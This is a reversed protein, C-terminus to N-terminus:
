LFLVKLNEKKAKAMKACEDVVPVAAFVQKHKAIIAANVNLDKRGLCLPKQKMQRARAINQGVGKWLLLVSKQCRLLCEVRHQGVQYCPHM